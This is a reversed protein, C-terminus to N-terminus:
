ALYYYKLMVHRSVGFGGWYCVAPQSSGLFRCLFSCPKKPDLPAAMKLHTWADRYSPRDIRGDMLFATNEILRNHPFITPFCDLHEVRKCTTWIREKERERERGGEKRKRKTKLTELKTYSVTNPFITHRPNNHRAWGM